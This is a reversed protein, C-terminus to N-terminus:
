LSTVRVYTLVYHNNIKHKWKCPKIVYNGSTFRVYSGSTIRVQNKYYLELPVELSIVAYKKSGMQM